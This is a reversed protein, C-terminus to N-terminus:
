PRLDAALGEMLAVTHANYAEMLRQAAKSDCAAVAEVLAVHDAWFMGALQPQGRLLPVSYVWTQTRIRDLFECIHQNGTLAALERWFRLDYGILIDLQGSRAAHSAADARRRISALASDPFDAKGETSMRRFVSDLVTARADILSLFDNHTFRRVQFGRHHEIDLLGQAALDVLAERVPTASVGYLEAIEKVTFHRGAPLRGTLVEDRLADAIQQRLSSRKVTSSPGGSASPGDPM